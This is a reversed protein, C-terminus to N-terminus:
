MNGQSLLAFCLLVCCLEAENDEETTVEEMDKQEQKAKKEKRHQNRIRAETVTQGQTKANESNEQKGTEKERESGITGAQGNQTEPKEVEDSKTRSRPLLKDEGRDRRRELM